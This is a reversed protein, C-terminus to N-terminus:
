LIKNAVHGFTSCVWIEFMNGVHVNLILFAAFEFYINCWKLKLRNLFNAIRTWILVKQFDVLTELSTDLDEFIGEYGYGTM